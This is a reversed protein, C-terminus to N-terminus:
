TTVERQEGYNPWVDTITLGYLQAIRLAVPPSPTREGREVMSMLSVSIGAQEAVERLLLGRTRREARLDVKM